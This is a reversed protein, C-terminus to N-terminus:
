RTYDLYHPPREGTNGLVRNIGAEIAERNEKIFAKKPMRSERWWNYLGEDNDVWLLIESIKV